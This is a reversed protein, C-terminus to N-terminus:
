IKVFALFFNVYLILNTSKTVLNQIMGICKLTVYGCMIAKLIGGLIFFPIM